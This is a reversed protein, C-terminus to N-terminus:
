SGLLHLGYIPQRPLCLKALERQQWTWYVFAAIERDSVGPWPTSGLQQLLLQYTERSIAVHGDTFVCRDGALLPSVVLEFRGVLPRWPMVATLEADIERM